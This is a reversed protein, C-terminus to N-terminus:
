SAYKDNLLNAAATLVDFSSVEEPLVVRFRGGFDGNFYCGVLWEEDDHREVRFGTKRLSRQHYYPLSHITAIWKNERWVKDVFERFGSPLHHGKGFTPEKRHGSEAQFEPKQHGRIKKVQFGLLYILGLANLEWAYEGLAEVEDVFMKMREDLEGVELSTITEGKELRHFIDAYRAMLEYDFSIPLPPFNIIESFREHKYFVPIDLVQGMIVAVAIQAKYGGTADIAVQEPGGMRQMISGMRQVLNRLGKTRFDRPRADQLEKVEVCEVGRLGLDERGEFYLRLVEGVARGEDTDSVLFFLQEMEMIDRARLEEISNIEAGCMRHSPPVRLLAKAVAHWRKSDYGDKAARWQEEAGGMDPPPAEQKFASFISTGVTCILIKRDFKAM